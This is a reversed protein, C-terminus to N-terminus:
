GLSIEFKKKDDKSGWAWLASGIVISAIGLSVGGTSDYFLAYSFFISLVGTFIFLVGVGKKWGYKVGLVIATGVFLIPWFNEIFGTPLFFFFNNFLGNYNFGSRNIGYVILLSVAMSIVGSVGKNGKFFKLLSFNILVFAILFILGLVITSEDVSNLINGFSGYYQASALGATLLSMFLIAGFIVSKKQM